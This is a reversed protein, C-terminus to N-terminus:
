QYAVDEGAGLRAKVTKDINHFQCPNLYADSQGRIPLAWAMMTLVALIITIQKM